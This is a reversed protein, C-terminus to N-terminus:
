YVRAVDRSNKSYFASRAHFHIEILLVPANQHYNIENSESPSLLRATILFSSPFLSLSLLTPYIFLKLFFSDLSRPFRQQIVLTFQFGHVKFYGKTTDDFEINCNRLTPMCIVTTSVTARAHWNRDCSFTFVSRSSIRNLRRFTRLRLPLNAPFFIIRVNLQSM